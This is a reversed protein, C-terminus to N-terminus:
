AKMAGRAACIQRIALPAAVNRSPPRKAQALALFSEQSVDEAAQADRLVRLATAYVMRAHRAALVHFAEANRHRYWHALLSQDSLETM